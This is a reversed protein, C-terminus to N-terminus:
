RKDRSKCGCYVYVRCMHVQLLKHQHGPKIQSHSLLGVGVQHVPRAVPGVVTQASQASGELVHGVVGALTHLSREVLYSAPSSADKRHDLKVSIWCFCM